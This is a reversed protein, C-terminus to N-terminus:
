VGRPFYILKNGEFVFDHSVFSDISGILWFSEVLSIKLFVQSIKVYCPKNSDEQLISQIIALKFDHSLFSDILWILWFLEIVFIEPVVPGIKEFGLKASHKCFIWESKRANKLGASTIDRKRAQEIPNQTPM